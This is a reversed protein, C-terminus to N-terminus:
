SRIIAVTGFKSRSNVSGYGRLMEVVIQPLVDKSDTKDFEISITDIDLSKIGKGETDVTLDSGILHRAFESTANIVATPIVTSEILVNDETYVSSRPWRLAQSTVAIAGSWTIREDLLRTAMKLAVEKTAEVANTWTSAHLHNAHYSDAQAVTVYSDSSTGGITADLSM